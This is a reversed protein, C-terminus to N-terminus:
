GRRFPCDLVDIFSDFFTRAILLRSNIAAPAAIIAAPASLGKDAPAACTGGALLFPFWGVSQRDAALGTNTL